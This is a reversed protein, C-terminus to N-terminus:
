RSVADKDVLNSDNRIEAQMILHSDLLEKIARDGNAIRSFRETLNKVALMLRDMKQENVQYM